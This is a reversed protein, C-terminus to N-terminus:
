YYRIEVALFSFQQVATKVILVTSEDLFMAVPVITNTNINITKSYFLTTSANTPISGPYTLLCEFYTAQVFNFTIAVSLDNNIIVVTPPASATVARFLTFVFTKYRQSLSNTAPNLSPSGAPACLFLVQEGSNHYQVAYVIYNAQYPISQRISLSGVIGTWVDHVDSVLDDFNMYFGIDGASDRFWTQNRISACLIPGEFTTGSSNQFTIYETFVPNILNDLM